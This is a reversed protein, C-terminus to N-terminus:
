VKAYKVRCFLCQEYQFHGVDDFKVEWEHGDRQPTWDGNNGGEQYKNRCTM